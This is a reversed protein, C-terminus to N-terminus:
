TLNTFYSAVSIFFQVLNCFAVNALITRNLVTWKGKTVRWNCDLSTLYVSEASLSTTMQVCHSVYWFHSRQYIQNLFTQHREIAGSTVVCHIAQCTTPINSATNNLVVNSYTYWNTYELLVIVTLWLMFSQLTFVNPLDIYLLKIVNIGFKVDCYVTFLLTHM